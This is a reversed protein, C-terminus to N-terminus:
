KLFLRGLWSRKQFLFWEYGARGSRYEEDHAAWSTELSDVEEVAHERYGKFALLIEERLAKLRESGFDRTKLIGQTIDGGRILRFGERHAAALIEWKPHGYPVRSGEYRVEDCLLVYGGGRLLRRGKTFLVDLPLYQSSEQLLLLDFRDEVTLAEFGVPILRLRETEPYRSRALDMLGADPSIGTVRYGQLSLRHATTGLGCGVDLIDRVGDPIQALLLASLNEQAEKFGPTEADWLGFHLHDVDGEPDIVYAYYCFPFELRRIAEQLSTSM